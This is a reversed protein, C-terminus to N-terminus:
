GKRTLRLDVPKHRRQKHMKAITIATFVPQGEGWALCDFIDSDSLASYRQRLWTTQRAIERVASVTNKDVPWPM